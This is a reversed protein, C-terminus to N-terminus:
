TIQLSGLREVDVKTLPSVDLYRTSGDWSIGLKVSRGMQYRAEFLHKGGFVRRRSFIKIGYCKIQEEAM